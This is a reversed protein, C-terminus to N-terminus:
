EKDWIIPFIICCFYEEVKTVFEKSRTNYELLVDFVENLDDEIESLLYIDNSLVDKTIEKLITIVRYLTIQEEKQEEVGEILQKILSTKSKVTRELEGIFYETIIKKM